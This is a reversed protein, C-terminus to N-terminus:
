FILNFFDRKIGLIQANKIMFPHKIKVFTKKEADISIIMHNKKKIYLNCQNIQSQEVLRADRSYVGDLGPMYIYINRGNKQM